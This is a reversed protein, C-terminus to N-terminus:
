NVSMLYAIFNGKEQAYCDRNHLDFCHESFNKEVKKADVFREANAAPALPKISKKTEIHKGESMPNETHCGSCTFDKSQWTRRKLYFTRGTQASFVPPAPEGEKAAEEKAKAAYTAALKKLVQSQKESIGGDAHAPFAISGVLALLLYTKKM